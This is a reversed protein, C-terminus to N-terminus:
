EQSLQVLIIINGYLDKVHVAQHEPTDMIEGMAEAGAQEAQRLAQTFNDTYLVLAPHPTTQNGIKEKQEPTDAKLFWLGTDDQGPLGLHLFRQGSEERDVLKKFGFAQEYFASAEDYDNVLIIMRGLKNM